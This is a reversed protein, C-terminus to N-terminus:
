VNVWYSSAHPHSKAIDLIQEIDGRGDGNKAQAFSLASSIAGNFCSLKRSNSDSDGAKSSEYHLYCLPNESLSIAYQIAIDYDNNNTTSSSSSSSPSFEHAFVYNVLLNLIMFLQFNNLAPRGSNESAEKNIDVLKELAVKANLLQKTDKSKRSSFSILARVAKEWTTQVLEERYVNSTDPPPPPDLSSFIFLDAIEEFSLENNIALKVAAVATTGTQPIFHTCRPHLNFVFM